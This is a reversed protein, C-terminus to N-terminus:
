EKNKPKFYRQRVRGSTRTAENRIDCLAKKFAELEDKVAKHNVSLTRIQSELRAKTELFDRNVDHQEELQVRLAAVRSDADTLKGKLDGVQERLGRVTEELANKSTNSAELRSSIDRVQERLDRRAETVEALEARLRDIDAVEDKLNMVQAELATKEGELEKAHAEASAVKEALSDREETVAELQPQTQALMDAFKNREEEAFSLDERLQDVLAAQVELSKVRVELEARAALEESLKKRVADLEDEMVEKLKFATEVQEELDKVISIISAKEESVDAYDEMEIRGQDASSDVQPQVQPNSVTEVAALAGLVANDVAEKSRARPKRKKKVDTRQNRSKPM